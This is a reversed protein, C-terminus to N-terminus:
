PNSALYGAVQQAVDGIALRVESEDTKLATM